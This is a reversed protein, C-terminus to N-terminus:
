PVAVVALRSRAGRAGVSVSIRHGRRYRIRSRRQWEGSRAGKRKRTTRQEFTRRADAIVEAQEELILREKVVAKDLAAYDGKQLALMGAEHAAEFERKLRRIKARYEKAKVM